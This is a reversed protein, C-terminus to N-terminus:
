SRLVPLEGGEEWRKLTSHLAAWRDERAYRRGAAMTLKVTASLRDEILDIQDMPHDITPREKVIGKQFRNGLNHLDRVFGRVTESALHSGKTANATMTISLKEIGEPLPSDLIQSLSRGAALDDENVGPMAISFSLERLIGFGRLKRMANRTLAAGFEVGCLDEQREDNQAKRIGGLTFDYGALYGEIAGIRPGYHNYQVAANNTRLNFVIGTDEGFAEDPGLQIHQLARRKSMRGPGHGGRPRAFDMYLIGSNVGGVELRLNTLPDSYREEIPTQDLLEVLKRLTRPGRQEVRYALIKM